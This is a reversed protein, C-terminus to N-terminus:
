IDIGYKEYLAKVEDNYRDPQVSGEFGATASYTILSWYINGAEKKTPNELLQFLKDGEVWGGTLDEAHGGHHSVLFEYDKKYEEYDSKAGMPYEETAKKNM